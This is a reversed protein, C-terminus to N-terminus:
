EAEGPRALVDLAAHAAAQEAIKKSSGKGNGLVRGQVLVEVEFTPAHQPGSTSVVRYEPNTRLLAQTREQLVTKRDRTEAVSSVSRADDRFLTAVLVQVLALGESRVLAACMAEFAGALVSDRDGEGSALAGRGLALMQGLGLERARRALGEADVLAARARTLGGEGVDPMLDFLLDAVLYDIIADGLMELRENFAGGRETAYSRHTLAETLLAPNAFPGPPRIGLEALREELLDIRPPTTM